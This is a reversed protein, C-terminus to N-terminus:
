PERWRWSIEQEDWYVAPLWIGHNQGAENRVIWLEDDFYTEPFQGGPEPFDAEDDVCVGFFARYQYAIPKPRFVAQIWPQEGALNTVTGLEHSGHCLILLDSNIWAFM